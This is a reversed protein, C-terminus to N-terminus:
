PGARQATCAWGVKVVASPSPPSGPSNHGAPVQTGVNACTGSVTLPVFTRLPIGVKPLLHIFGQVNWLFGRHTKLGFYSQPSIRFSSKQDLNTPLLGTEYCTQATPHEHLLTSSGTPVAPKWSQRGAGPQSCPPLRQPPKLPGELSFRKMDMLIM